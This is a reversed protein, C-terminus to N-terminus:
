KHKEMKNLVVVVVVVRIYSAAREGEGKRPSPPPYHPFPGWSQPQGYSGRPSTISGLGRGLPHPVHLTCVPSDGPSKFRKKYWYIHGQGVLTLFCTPLIGVAGRHGQGAWIRGASPQPALLTSLPPSSTEYSPTSTILPEPIAGKREM